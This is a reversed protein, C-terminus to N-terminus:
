CFQNTLGNDIGELMNVKYKETSSLLDTIKQRHREFLTRNDQGPNVYQDLPEEVLEHLSETFRELNEQNHEFLPREQENELYYGYVQIFFRTPKLNTGAYLNIFLSADIQTDIVYTHGNWFGGQTM